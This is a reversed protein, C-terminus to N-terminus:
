LIEHYRRLFRFEAEGPTFGVPKIGENVLPRKGNVSWRDWSWPDGRSPVLYYAETSLQQNDAAKVSVSLPYNFGFKIALARMIKDEIAMYNELFPKIPKAVDTLYAESADHLLGALPEDCLYSVAISHEAVSMFFRCHGTWRCTNSLAHAIDIIDFDEPDPEMFYVSKGSFTEIFDLDRKSREDLPTQEKLTWVDVTEM